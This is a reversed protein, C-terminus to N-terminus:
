QPVGNRLYEFIVRVFSFAVVAACIKLTIWFAIKSMHKTGLTSRPAGVISAGRTVSPM